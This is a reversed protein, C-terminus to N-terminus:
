IKSEIFQILKKKQKIEMKVELFKIEKSDKNNIKVFDKETTLIKADLKKAYLRIDSIDKKKYEYHDPFRIDGVINFSNKLLTKKFSDPNGIGSFIIFREKLNFKKLNLPKYSTDFIKINQNNKKIIKKIKTTTEGNGNLFIADYKSISSLKERLPGSPILHGNGIWKLNNFCVFNLDYLISRDQLGDDFIAVDINNKVARNLAGQRKNHCYLKAKKSLLKQEDIQAKYYKKIIVTKYNLTNLINNIEITLPTKATGGVYINGVCISKISKNKKTNKKQNIFFYNNIMIPITLPLLIYSLFNPKKYDWFFPKKFNM